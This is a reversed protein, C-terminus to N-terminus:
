RRRARSVPSLVPVDSTKGRDGSALATPFNRRSPARAGPARGCALEDQTLRQHAGSASIVAGILGRQGCLTERDFAWHIFGQSFGLMPSPLAM